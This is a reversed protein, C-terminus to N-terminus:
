LITFVVIFYRLMMLDLIYEQMRVEPKTGCM